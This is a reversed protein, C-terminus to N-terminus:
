NSELCECWFHYVMIHCEQVFATRNSPTVIPIEVMNKLRGGDKGLLGITFIGLERAEEVANVVNTSNGSTSIAVLLDGPKGLTKVQRAFVTEFSYDNSWATLISTDTSLAIAPFGLREKEFHCLLEAAFHQADAASGGNGCILIKNGKSVVERIKEAGKIISDGFETSFKRKVELSKNFYKELKELTTM